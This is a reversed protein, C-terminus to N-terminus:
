PETSRDPFVRLCDLFRIFSRLSLAASHGAFVREPKYVYVLKPLTSSLACLLFPTDRQIQEGLM